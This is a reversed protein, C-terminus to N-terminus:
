RMQAVTFTKEEANSNELNFFFFCKLFGSENGCMLYKKKTRNDAPAM